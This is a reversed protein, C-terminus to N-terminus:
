EVAEEDSEEEKERYRDHSSAVILTVGKQIVVKEGENIEKQNCKSISDDCTVLLRNLHM